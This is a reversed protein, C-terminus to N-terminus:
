IVNKLVEMVQKKTEEISFSNDIVYDPLICKKKIDLQSNIRSLAEEETYNNREKLRKLTIDKDSYVCIIKDCIHEMKAEFLLPIDLFIIDNKFSSIEKIMEKKVLPHILNNLKERELENNFIINSLKKRDVNFNSDICDFVEKIKNKLEFDNLLLNNVIKDSDILKYGLDSIISSVLSKGTAIGGTIGIVM